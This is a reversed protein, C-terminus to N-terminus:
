RNPIAQIAVIQSYNASGVQREIKKPPANAGPLRKRHRLLCQQRKLQMRSESMLSSASMIKKDAADARDDLVMLIANLYVYNPDEPYMKELALLANVVDRAERLKYLAILPRVRRIRITLPSKPGERLAQDYSKLAVEWQGRQYAFSIARQVFELSILKTNATASIVL